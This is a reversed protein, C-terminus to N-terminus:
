LKSYWLGHNKSKVTNKIVKLVQTDL